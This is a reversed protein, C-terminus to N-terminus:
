SLPEGQYGPKRIDALRVSLVAAIVLAAGSIQLASLTQGLIVFGFFMSAVPELNLSLAAPVAGAYSMAIFITVIAFAYASTGVLIGTWGLGTQPLAFDGLVLTIVVFLTMASLMMHLTIPRSDDTGVLRNNLVVVVTIGLAAMIALAVGELNLQGSTVDLALALGFFAVLIAGVSLWTPRERGSIWMYISTLLPFTYFILVALAVPIFQIAALLGYSYVALIAGLGIAALRRRWPMKTSRGLVLIITLVLAAALASRLSLYTLPNSGGEYALKAATSNAAFGIGAAGALAAGLLINPRSM